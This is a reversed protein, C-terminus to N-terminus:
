LSEKRREREAILYVLLDALEEIADALHDRGNDVQLPTGYKNIGMEKRSNILDIALDHVHVGNTPIPLQQDYRADREASM